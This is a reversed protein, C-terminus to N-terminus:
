ILEAPAGLRRTCSAWADASEFVRATLSDLGEVPLTAAITDALWLAVVEATSNRDTFQPLENLSQGDLQSVCRDLSSSLLGIDVLTGDDRLRRGTVRLEVRYDHAHPRSAPGFDGLLSHRASFRTAVGVEFM